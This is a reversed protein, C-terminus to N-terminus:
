WYNDDCLLSYPSVPIEQMWINYRQTDFVYTTCVGNRVSFYKHNWRSNRVLVLFYSDIPRCDVVEFGFRGIVFVLNFYIVALNRGFLNSILTFIFFKWITLWILSSIKRKLVSAAFDKVHHYYYIDIRRFLFQEVSHPPSTTVCEARIQFNELEFGQELWGSQFKKMAEKLWWPSYQTTNENGRDMQGNNM